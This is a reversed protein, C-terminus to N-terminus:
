ACNLITIGPPTLMDFELSKALALTLGHNKINLADKAPDFEIQMESISHANLTFRLVPAVSIMM